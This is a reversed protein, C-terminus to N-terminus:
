YNTLIYEEAEKKTEFRIVDGDPPLIEWLNKGYCTEMHKGKFQILSFNQNKYIYIYQWKAFMGGYPFAKILEPKSKIAKQWETYGAHVKKTVELESM